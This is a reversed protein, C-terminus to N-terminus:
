QYKKSSLIESLILALLLLQPTKSEADMVEESKKYRSLLNNAIDSIGTTVERLTIRKSEPLEKCMEVIMSLSALPSRIDHAVQEALTRFKEQEQLKSRQLENKLRLSEAEKQATIDLSTGITGIINGKDDHLPAKFATFYKIEGTSVDEIPEEVFISKGTRIVEKNTKVLNDAYEYPYYDYPTKGIFDDISTGGIAKAISENGGLVVNNLDFWYLPVQIVNAIEKLYKLVKAQKKV